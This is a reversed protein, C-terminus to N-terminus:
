SRRVPGFSRERGAAVLKPADRGLPSPVTQAASSRAADGDHALLPRKPAPHDAHYRALDLLWAELPARMRSKGTLWQRVSSEAVGLQRALERQSWGLAALAASLDTPTM